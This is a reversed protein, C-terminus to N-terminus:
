SHGLNTNKLISLLKEVQYESKEEAEQLTQIMSWCGELDRAMENVPRLPNSGIEVSSILMLWWLLEEFAEKNFWWIDNYRNVQLFQQVEGDKLLLELIGRAKMPDSSETIFWRQHRTLIKVLGMSRRVTAEELGLDALGSGIVKSLGWEDILSASRQSFDTSGAM